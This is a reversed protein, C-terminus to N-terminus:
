GTASIFIVLRSRISFNQLTELRICTAFTRKLFHTPSFEKGVEVGAEKLWGLEPEVGIGVGAITCDIQHHAMKVGTLEKVGQLEILSCDTEVNVGHERLHRTVLDGTQKDFTHSWICPGRLAFFTPISFHSFLNLYECAIFGGGIVVANKHVRENLLQLLHDADDLTRLYSVGRPDPTLTRADAGTTILLKDYPLERGDSLRVFRNATDLREVRLGRLWEIRAEDYWSENKLFVRERPVKGVLYYPLLVRSYIPHEEHSILTIEANPNLQLEDAATTGADWRGRDRFAYSFTLSCNSAKSM